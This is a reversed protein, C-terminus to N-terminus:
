FIQERASNRSQPFEPDNVGISRIRLWVNDVRTTNISACDGVGGSLTFITDYLGTIVDVVGEFEGEGEARDSM